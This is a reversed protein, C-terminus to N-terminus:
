NVIKPRDAGAAKRNKLQAVGKNAEEETTIDRETVRGFWKRGKRICRREGRGM